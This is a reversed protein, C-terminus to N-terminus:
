QKRVVIKEFSDYIHKENINITKEVIESSNMLVLYITSGEKNIVKFINGKKTVMEYNVEILKSYDNKSDFETLKIEKGEETEDKVEEVKEKPKQMRKAKEPNMAEFFHGLVKGMDFFNDGLKKNINEELLDIRKKIFNFDEEIKNEKDVKIKIYETLSMGNEQSEEIWKNKTESEVRLSILETAM